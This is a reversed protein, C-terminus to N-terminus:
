ISIAMITIKQEGALADEPLHNIARTSQMHEANTPFRGVVEIAECLTSASGAASAVAGRGLKQRRHSRLSRLSGLRNGEQPHVAAGLALSWRVWALEMGESLARELSEVQM